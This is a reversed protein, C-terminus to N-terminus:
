ARPRVNQNIRFFNEPDYRRKVEALRAYTDGPYAERIRAEEAAELFNVYVGSGFPRVRAWFEDVWARHPAGDEAGPGDWDNIITLMYSKDRHAFATAEAPVRAFAGGLPRIQAFSLPSTGHAVREIVTDVLEDPFSRLFTSRGYHHSSVTPGRTLDFIAPYPMPATLDVTDPSLAALPAIARRGDDLDGVYVALILLIMTGHLPAPIFPLPPAKLLFTITTLGDPAALARDVYARVNERTAPTIIAGGLVTGVPRLQFQLATVVGFNGGGGRLAWFLDAHERESATIVEGNATVVQASLLSDVTLGYKRVMFGIGGGLTLGGIGVTPADGTSLGLGHEAALPALVESTVGPQVWATQTTPDISVGKLQSLDLVLGGDVSGFGALSHGGSRIAFPLDRQRANTIAQAVDLADAPRVVLSPRRVFEKNWVRRVADYEAHGPDIVEGAIRWVLDSSIGDRTSPVVEPRVLELVMPTVKESREECGILGVVSPRPHVVPVLAMM